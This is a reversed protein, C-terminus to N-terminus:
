YRFSNQFVDTFLELGRNPTQPLAFLGVDLVCPINLQFPSKGNSDLSKIIAEMCLMSIIRNNDQATSLRNYRRHLSIHLKLGPLCLMLMSKYYPAQPERYFLISQSLREKTEQSM